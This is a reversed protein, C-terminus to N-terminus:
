IAEGALHNYRNLDLRRNFFFVFSDRREGERLGVSIAAERATNGQHIVRKYV